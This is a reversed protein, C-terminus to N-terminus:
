VEQGPMPHLQQGFGAEDTLAWPSTEETGPGPEQEWGGDMGMGHGTGAAPSPPAGRARGCRGM